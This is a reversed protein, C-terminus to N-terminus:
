NQALDIKCLCMQSHLQTGQVLRIERLSDALEITKQMRKSTHARCLNLEARAHDHVCPAFTQTPVRVVQWKRMQDVDAQYARTEPPGGPSTASKVNICTSRMHELLRQQFAQARRAFQTAMSNNRLSM